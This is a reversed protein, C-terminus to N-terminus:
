ERSRGDLVVLIGFAEFEPSGEIERLDALASTAQDVLALLTDAQEILRNGRIPPV